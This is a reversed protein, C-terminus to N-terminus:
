KPNSPKIHGVLDTQLEPVPIELNGNPAEATTAARQQGTEPDYWTVTVKGDSFSDIKISFLPRRSPIETAFAPKSKLPLRRM